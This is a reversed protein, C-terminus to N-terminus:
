VYSGECRIAVKARMNPPDALFALWTGKSSENAENPRLKATLGEPLFLVALILLASYAAYSLVSPAYSPMGPLTALQNLVQVVLTVAAAGLLAGSITGLGGVVAM